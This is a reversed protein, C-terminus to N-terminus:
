NKSLLNLPNRNLQTNFKVTQSRVVKRAEQVYENRQRILTRLEQELHIKLTSNLTRAIRKATGTCCLELEKLRPNKVLTCRRPTAVKRGLIADAAPMIAWNLAEDFLVAVMQVPLENQLDKLYKHLSHAYESFRLLYRAVYQENELRRTRWQIKNYTAPTNDILFYQSNILEITATVPIHDSVNTVGSHHYEHVMIEPSVIIYDVISAGCTSSFTFRPESHPPTHFRFGESRLWRGVTNARPNTTEDRAVTGFRMNFDGLLVTPLKTLAIHAKLRAIQRLDEGIFQIGDCTWIISNHDVYLVRFHYEDKRSFMAVGYHHGFSGHKPFANGLVCKTHPIM